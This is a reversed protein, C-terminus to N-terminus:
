VYGWSRGVKLNHMTHKSYGFMRGVTTTSLGSALLPKFLQVEKLTLVSKHNKEGNLANGSRKMDDMNDKQTGLYLHDLNVCKRNNCKHCIHLNRDYDGNYFVWSLMHARSVKYVDSYVYSIRGYGSPSIGGVWEVCGSPKQKSRTCLYFQTRELHSLGLPVPIYKKM